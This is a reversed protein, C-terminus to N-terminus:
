KPSLNLSYVYYHNPSSGRHELRRTVKQCVAEAKDFQRSDILDLVSNSLRDIELEVLHFSVDDNYRSPPPKQVARSTQQRLLCCRKYKKGSGCPCLDNRGVKPM